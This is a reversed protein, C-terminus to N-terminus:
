TFTVKVFTKVLELSYIVKWLTMFDRTFITEAVVIDLHLFAETPLLKVKDRLSVDEWIFKVIKM